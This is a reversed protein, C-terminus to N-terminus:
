KKQIRYYHKDPNGDLADTWNTTGEQEVYYTHVVEWDNSELSSGRLIENTVFPMENDITLVVSTAHPEVGSRLLGLSIQPYIEIVKTPYWGIKIDDILLYRAPPYSNTNAPASIRFEAVQGAYASIDGVYTIVGGNTIWPSMSITNTNVQILFDDNSPSTTLFKLTQADSPIHGTQALSVSRPIETDPDDVGAHLVVSINGEIAPSTSDLVEIYAFHFIPGGGSCVFTVPNTDVYGTWGPLAYSLFMACTPSNTFTSVGVAEFDLNTFHNASTVSVFLFSAIVVLMSSLTYKSNM